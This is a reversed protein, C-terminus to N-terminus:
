EKSNNFWKKNLCQRLVLKSRHVIQWYNSTTIDLEQCIEKANKQLLYKAQISKRWIEPLDCICVDFIRIFQSNNFLSKENPWFSENAGDKWSDSGDFLEQTIRYEPLEQDILGSRKESKAKRYHDIIKRNLISILWTKPKSKGEFNDVSKLAAAFTDQVMDQALMKNNLLYMARSFLADGHQNVWKSLMKQREQNKM